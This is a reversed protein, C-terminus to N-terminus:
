ILKIRLERVKIAKIAPFFDFNIFPQVILYILHKTLIKEGFM